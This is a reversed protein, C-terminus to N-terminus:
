EQSKLWELIEEKYNDIYYQLQEKYTEGPADGLNIDKQKFLEVVLDPIEKGNEVVDILQPVLILRELVGLEPLIGELKAEEEPSLSEETSAPSTETESPLEPWSTERTATETETEAQTTAETEIYSHETQMRTSLSPTSKGENRKQTYVLAAFGLLLIVFITLLKKM